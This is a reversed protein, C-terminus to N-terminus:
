YAITTIHRPTSLCPLKGIRDCDAGTIALAAWKRDPPTDNAPALRYPSRRAPAAGCEDHACAVIPALNHPTLLAADASILSMLVLM